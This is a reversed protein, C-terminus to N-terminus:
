SLCIIRFIFCVHSIMFKSVCLCFIKVSMCHVFIPFLPICLLCFVASVKLVNKRESTQIIFSQGIWFILIITHVITRYVKWCLGCVSWIWTHNIVRCRFFCFIYTYKFAKFWFIWMSTIEVLIRLVLEGEILERKFYKQLVTSGLPIKGSLIFNENIFGRYLFRLLSSM